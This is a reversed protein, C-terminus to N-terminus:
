PFSKFVLFPNLHNNGQPQAQQGTEDKRIFDSEIIHTKQHAQTIHEQSISGTYQRSGSPSRQKKYRYQM